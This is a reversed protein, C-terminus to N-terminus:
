VAGGPEREIKTQGPEYFAECWAAWAQAAEEPTRFRANAYEAQLLLRKSHQCGDYDVVLVKSHRGLAFSPFRLVPKSLEPQDHGCIPCCPVSSFRSHHQWQDKRLSM